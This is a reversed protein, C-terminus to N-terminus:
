DVGENLWKMIEENNKEYFGTNYNGSIFSPHFTLIHM